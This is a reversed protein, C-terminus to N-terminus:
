LAVQKLEEDSPSDRSEDASKLDPYAVHVFEDKREIIHFNSLSKVKHKRKMKSSIELLAENIYEEREEATM